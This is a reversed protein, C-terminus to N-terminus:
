INPDEIEIELELVDDASAKITEGPQINSVGGYFNKKTISSINMEVLSSTNTEATKGTSTKSKATKGKPSKSKVEKAKITKNEPIKDEPTKNEPPAGLNIHKIFFSRFTQGPPEITYNVTIVHDYIYNKIIKLHEDENEPETCYCIIAKAVREPCGKFLKEVKIFPKGDKIGGSLATYDDDIYILETNLNTCLEGLYDNM